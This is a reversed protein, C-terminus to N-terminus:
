PLVKSMTEGLPLVALSQVRFNAIRWECALCDEWVIASVFFALLRKIATQLWSPYYRVASEANKEGVAM